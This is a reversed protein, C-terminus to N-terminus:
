RRRFKVNHVGKKPHIHVYVPDNLIVELETLEEVHKPKQIIPIVNQARQPLLTENWEHLGCTQGMDCGARREVLDERWPHIYAACKKCKAMSIKM